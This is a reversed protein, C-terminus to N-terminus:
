ESASGKLPVPSCVIESRAKSVLPLTPLALITTRRYIFVVFTTLCLLLSTFLRFYHPPFGMNILRSKRRIKAKKSKGGAKVQVM